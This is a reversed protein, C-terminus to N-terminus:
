KQNILLRLGNVIVVLTSGEHVIVGFTINALGMFNLVVLIGVVAMSFIINQWVIKNLRKSVRYAESLKELDNNMVVVDAVDMAVDTGDGMAIGIDAKVLAPADNVGDGVMGVMGYTAKQEDIMKSKEEPLVNAIVQDVGLTRGVAEGTLQADGTIMTTRVNQSRFYSIAQKAQENPVDMLAILGIVQQNCGIYIVTKGENALRQQKTQMEECVTQFVSPKSIQYLNGDVTAELGVGIVNEVLLERVTVQDKLYQVIATALPHNSQREMNYVIEKVLPEADPVVLEFDTVIPKGATLTGTKDFAIAKLDALNALFAGGKFLVGKKALNSIGSLTAPVASAALACPSASILFVLGRYFSDEWTWQFVFPGAIIILPLLLLVFSVYRPEFQKIKSATPSLNAQSQNVLQLIKAFVTDSSDKTVEVTIVGSGNITSGFVEDGVTKEKPMSEGNISSEDIATTGSIIKGDTPVQAGNLVKVRDGISLKAVSVTKTTGDAQLLQAETPNLNLLNTIERRSKGEAYEELFHAGAFILILLAAEEFNGLLMAGVAALTMLLHINPVFKKAAVSAQYTDGFGEGIVHYGSFVVVLFFLGNSFGGIVRHLLLGAIFLLLGVFFLVVPSQGHNHAHDHNHRHEHTHEPTQEYKQCNVHEEM